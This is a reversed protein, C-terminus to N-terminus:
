LFLAVSNVPGGGAGLALATGEGLREIEDQEVEAEGIDVPNLHALGHAAM